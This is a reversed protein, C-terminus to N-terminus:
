SFDLIVHVPEAKAPLPLKQDYIVGEIRVLFPSFDPGFAIVNFDSRFAMKDEGSCLDASYVLPSFRNDPINILKYPLKYYGSTLARTMIANAQNQFPHAMLNFNQDLWQNM